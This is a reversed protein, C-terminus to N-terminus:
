LRIQNSAQAEQLNSPTGPHLRLLCVYALVGALRVRKSCEGEISRGTDSSIFSPHGMIAAGNHSSIPIM